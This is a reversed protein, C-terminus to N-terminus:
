RAEELGDSSILLTTKRFKLSGDPVAETSQQRRMSARDDTMKRSAPAM